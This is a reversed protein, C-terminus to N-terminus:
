GAFISVYEHVSTVDILSVTVKVGANASIWYM